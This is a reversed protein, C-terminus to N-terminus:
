LNPWRASTVFPFNWMTCVKANKPSLNAATFILVVFNKIPLLITVYCVHICPVARCACLLRQHLKFGCFNRRKNTVEALYCIPECLTFTLRTFPIISATLTMSNAVPKMVSYFYYLLDLSCDEKQIKKPQVFSSDPVHPDSPTHLCRDKLHSWTQHLLWASYIHMM